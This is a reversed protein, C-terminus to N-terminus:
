NDNISQVKQGAENEYRLSNHIKGVENLLQDRDGSIEHSTYFNNNISLLSRLLHVFAANGRTVRDRVPEHAVVM